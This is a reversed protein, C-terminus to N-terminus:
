IAAGRKTLRYHGAGARKILKDKQRLEDLQNPLSTAKYGGAVVLSRLERVAMKEQAKLAKVIIAKIGARGNTKRHQGNLKPAPLALVDDLVGKLKSQVRPADEVVEIDMANHGHSIIEALQEVGVTFSFKLQKIPM